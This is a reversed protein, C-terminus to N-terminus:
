CSYSWTVLAVNGIGQNFAMKMDDIITKGKWVYISSSAKEKWKYWTLQNEIKVIKEYEIQLQIRRSEARGFVNNLKIVLDDIQLPKKLYDYIHNKM